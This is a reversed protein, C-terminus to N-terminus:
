VGIFKLIVAVLVAVVVGVFVKGATSKVWSEEKEPKVVPKNEESVRRNYVSKLYSFKDNQFRSRSGREVEYAMEETSLNNIKRKVEDSLM